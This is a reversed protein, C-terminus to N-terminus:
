PGFNNIVRTRRSCGKVASSRYEKESKLFCCSQAYIYNNIMMDELIAIGCLCNCKQFNVAECSKLAWVENWFPQDDAASGVALVWVRSFLAEKGSTSLQFNYLWQIEAQAEALLGLRPLGLWVQRGLSLVFEAKLLMQEREKKLSTRM